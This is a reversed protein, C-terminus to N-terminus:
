ALLHLILRPTIKLRTLTKLSTLSRFCRLYDYGESATTTYSALTLGTFALGCAPIARTTTGSFPGPFSSAKLRLDYTPSQLNGHIAPVYLRPIKLYFVESRVARVIPNDYTTLSRGSFVEPTEVATIAQDITPTDQTLQPKQVAVSWLFQNLQM